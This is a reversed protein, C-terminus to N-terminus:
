TEYKQSRYFTVMLMVKCLGEYAPSFTALVIFDFGMLFRTFYNMTFEYIKWLIEDNFRYCKWPRLAMYFVYFNFGM